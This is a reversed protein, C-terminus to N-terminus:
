SRGGRKPDDAPGTALDGARVNRKRDSLVGMDELTQRADRPRAFGPEPGDPDGGGERAAAVQRAIAAEDNRVRESRNLARARASAEEDSLELVNVGDQNISLIKQDPGYCTEHPKTADILNHLPSRM